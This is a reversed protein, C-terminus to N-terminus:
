VWRITQGDYDQENFFVLQIKSLNEMFMEGVQILFTFIYCENKFCILCCLNMQEFIKVKTKLYMKSDNINKKILYKLNFKLLNIDLFLILERVNSYKNFFSVMIM